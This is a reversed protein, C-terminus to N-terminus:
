GRQRAEIKIVTDGWKVTTGPTATFNVGIPPGIWERPSFQRGSSQWDLGFSVRGSGIDYGDAYGPFILVPDNNALAGLYGKWLQIFKDRIGYTLVLTRYAAVPDILVIGSPKGDQTFGSIEFGGGAWTYGNWTQEGQTCLRTSFDPWDIQLFWSPRSAGAGAAALTPSSVPRSGPM